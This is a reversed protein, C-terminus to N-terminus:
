GLLDRCLVACGRTRCMATSVKRIAMSTAWLPTAFVNGHKVHRYVRGPEHSWCGMWLCVSSTVIPRIEQEEQKVELESDERNNQQTERTVQEQEDNDDNKLCKFINSLKIHNRQNKGLAFITLIFLGFISSMIIFVASIVEATTNCGAKM